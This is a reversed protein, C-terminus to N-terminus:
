GKISSMLRLLDDVRGARADLVPQGRSSMVGRLFKATSSSIYTPSVLEERHRAVLGEVKSRYGEFRNDDSDPDFLASLALFYTIFLEGNPNHIQNGQTVRSLRDHFPDGKRLLKTLATELEDVVPESFQNMENTLVKVTRETYSSARVDELVRALELEQRATDLMANIQAIRAEAEKRVEAVQAATRAEAEALEDGVAQQALRTEELTGRVTDIQQSIETIDALKTKAENLTKQVDAFGLVGLLGVVPGGIGLSWRFVNRARDASDIVETARRATQDYMKESAALKAETSQTVVDLRAALQALVQEHESLRLDTMLDYTSRLRRSMKELLVLAMETNQRVLALFADGSIELVTTRATALLTASRPRMEITAMEGFLEGRGLEALKVSSGDPKNVMVAASGRGIVFISSGTDGQHVIEAGDDFSQETAVSPDLLTARADADLTEFVPHTAIIAGWDLSHM